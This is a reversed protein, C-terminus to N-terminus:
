IKKVVYKHGNTSNIEFITAMKEANYYDDFELVESNNDLIIVNLKVGHTNTVEKIICFQDKM